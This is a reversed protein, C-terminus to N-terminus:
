VKGRECVRGREREKDNQTSGNGNSTVVMADRKAASSVPINKM